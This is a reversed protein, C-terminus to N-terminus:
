LVLFPHLITFDFVRVSNNENCSQPKLIIPMAYNIIRFAHLQLNHVDHPTRLPVRERMHSDVSARTSQCREAAAIPNRSLQTQECLTESNTHDLQTM